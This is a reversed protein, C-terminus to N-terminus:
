WAAHQKKKWMPYGTALYLVVGLAATLAVVGYMTHPVAGPYHLRSKSPDAPDYLVVLPYNETRLLDLKNQPLANPSEASPWYGEWVGTMTAPGASYTYTLKVKSLMNDANYHTLRIECNKVRGETKKYEPRTNRQCWLMAPVVALGVLLMVVFEPLGPRQLRRRQHLAM